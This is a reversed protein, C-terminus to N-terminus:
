ETEVSAMSGYHAKVVDDLRKAADKRDTGLQHVTGGINYTYPDGDKHRHSKKFARKSSVRAMGLWSIQRAVPKGCNPCAVLPEDKILQFLEFTAPKCGGDTHKYVYTPM